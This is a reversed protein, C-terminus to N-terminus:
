ATAKIKAKFEAVERIEPLTVDDDELYLEVAEKLNKLAGEKNRGQSAVGTEPNYSVYWKGEKTLVATFLREQSRAM